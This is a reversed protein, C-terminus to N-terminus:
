SVTKIDIIEIIGNRVHVYQDDTLLILPVQDERYIDAIRGGLYKEKFDESGWHPVTTFNVLDYAKRDELIVGEMKHYELLKPGAIISGASTGIYVKGKEQIFERILSVFGSKQSQQLLYFTDGGSLYIYDFSSLNTELESRSKGTISYDSVVFGADVLKQRDIKQWELDEREGKAESATDIFVLKNAKSLDLKRAIDHAVAHISSTLFIEGKSRHTDNTM